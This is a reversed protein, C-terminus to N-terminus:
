KSNRLLALQHVDATFHADSAMKEITCPMRWRWYHHPIEPHNIQEAELNDSRLTPSISLWDQLSIISLLSSSKMHLALIRAAMDTSLVGDEEKGQSNDIANIGGNAIANTSDTSNNTNTIGNNTNATGNNANTIGNNANATTSKSSNDPNEGLVDRVFAKAAEPNQKWWLRLPPMDHTSITDVSYLPNQNLDSFQRNPQKPMTQIELTLINLDELVPHVCAPIMGLDEACTLMRTACTLKPLRKYAQDAWFKNHREFFFYQYIRNYATANHPSLHKYERTQTGLINLHYKGADAESPIFLINTYASLFLERQDGSFGMERLKADIARQSSAYRPQLTWHNDPEFQFFYEKAVPLLEGFHLKLEGETFRPRTYTAPNDTFGMIKLESESLPLAPNFHGLTGYIHQIPIEWIRFFGLVHDIRYADFYRAMHQLREQWWIAGDNLINEWNYTPFGWNQGRSSFMDPPAGAQEDSNLYKPLVWSSVSDRSVGIPIDGKLIIGKERAYDHVQRFQKDLMYQIVSYFEIDDIKNNAIAWRQLEVGNYERFRPWHRFNATGFQKLLYRFFSYPVLWKANDRKFIKYRTSRLIDHKNEHYWTHLYKEKLDFVEDYDILPLANVNARRQELLRITTKSKVAPMANFDMYIPHLAFTSIPNYPYSDHWNGERTTDNVPLLQVAHLGAEAAWDILKILSGFDGIGWDSESRLSFLPVVVGATKMLDIPLTPTVVDILTKGSQDAPPLLTHNDGAEWVAKGDANIIVFKYKLGEAPISAYSLPFAWTATCMEVAPIGHLPDWNGTQPTNGCLVLRAGKQPQFDTFSLVLDAEEILQLSPPSPIFPKITDAFASSYYYNKGMDSHWLAKVTIHPTNHFPLHHSYQGHGKEEDVFEHKSRVTFGFDIEEVKSMPIDITQTWHRGDDSKMKVPENLGSRLKKSSSLNIFVSQEKSHTIYEVEIDILTTETM